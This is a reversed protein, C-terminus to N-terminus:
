NTFIEHNSLPTDIDTTHDVKNYCAKYNDKIDQYKIYVFDTQTKKNKRIKKHKRFLELMTSMDCICYFLVENPTEKDYYTHVIIDIKKYKQFKEEQQTITVTPYGKYELTKKQILLEEGNELEAKFDIGNFDEEGECKIIKKILLIKKLIRMIGQDSQSSKKDRQPSYAASFLSM